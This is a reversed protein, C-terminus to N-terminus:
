EKGRAVPSKCDVKSNLSSYPTHVCCIAMVIECRPQKKVKKKKKGSMIRKKLLNPDNSKKLLLMHTFKYISIKEDKWKEM